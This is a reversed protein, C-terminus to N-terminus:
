LIGKLMCGYVWEPGVLLLGRHGVNNVNLTQVQYRNRRLKYSLVVHVSKGVRGLRCLPMCLHKMGLM